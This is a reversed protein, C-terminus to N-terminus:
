ALAPNRNRRRWYVAGGGILLLALPIVAAPEPVARLEGISTTNVGGNLAGVTENNSESNAFSVTTGTGTNAVSRNNGLNGDFGGGPGTHLTQFTGNTLSQNTIYDAILGGSLAGNTDLYAVASVFNSVDATNMPQASSVWIAGSDRDLNFPNTNGSIGNGGVLSFNWISTNLPDLLSPSYTFDTDVDTGGVVILSGAKIIDSTSNFYSFTNIIETSNFRSMTQIANTDVTSNGFWFSDLAGLTMDSTVLFEVWERRSQSSQFIENIILSASARPAPVVMGMSVALLLARSWPTRLRHLNRHNLDM